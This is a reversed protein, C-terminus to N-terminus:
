PMNDPAKAVHLLPFPISRAVARDTSFGRRAMHAGVLRPKGIISALAKGCVCGGNRPKEPAVRVFDAFLAGM